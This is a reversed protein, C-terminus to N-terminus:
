FEKVSSLGVSGRLSAFITNEERWGNRVSSAASRM